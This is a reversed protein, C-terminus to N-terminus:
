TLNLVKELATFAKSFNGEAYIPALRAMIQEASPEDVDLFYNSVFEEALIFIAALPFIQSHSLGKPYGSGDPREHHQEIIKEIDPLSCKNQKLLEASLKAHDLLLGKTRRNLSTSNDIDIKLLKDWAIHQIKELSLDHFLAAIVLKRLTEPSTWDSEKCIATALYAIAVSHDFYYNDVQVIREISDMIGSQTSFNELSQDILKKGSELITESIQLAAMHDYILKCAQKHDRVETNSALRRNHLDGSLKDIYHTLLVPYQSIEIYINDVGKQKYKNLTPLTLHENQNIVRVYKNESLKLYIDVPVSTMKYLNILLFPKFDAILTNRLGDNIRAVKDIYKPIERMEKPRSLFFHKNSGNEVISKFHPIDALPSTSFLIIPVDINNDTIYKALEERANMVSVSIIMMEIADSSTSLVEIVDEENHFPMSPSKSSLEVVEKLHTLVKINNELVLINKM